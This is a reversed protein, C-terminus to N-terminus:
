NKEHQKFSDNYFVFKEFCNESVIKKCDRIIEKVSRVLEKKLFM